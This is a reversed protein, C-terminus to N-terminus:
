QKELKKYYKLEENIFDQHNQILYDLDSDKIQLHKLLLMSDQESIHQTVKESKSWIWSPYPSEKLFQFWLDLGVVKNINKHNLLQAKENFRKSLLRNIIFFFEEKQDDSVCKWNQKDKFMANTISLLNNEITM